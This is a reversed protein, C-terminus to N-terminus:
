LSLICLKVINPIKIPNEEKMGLDFDFSKTFSYLSVKREQGNMAVLVNILRIFGPSEKHYGYKPETYMILEDFSWRPTQEGCLMLRVESPKFAHLKEM